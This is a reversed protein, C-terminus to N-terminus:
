CLWPFDGNKIPPLYNKLRQFTNGVHCSSTNFCSVIIAIHRTTFKAAVNGGNGAATARHHNPTEWPDWGPPTDRPLPEPSPDASNPSKKPPKMPKWPSKMHCKITSYRHSELCYFKPIWAKGVQRNQSSSMSTKLRPFFLPELEQVWCPHPFFPPYHPLVLILGWCIPLRQAFPEKLRLLHHNTTSPNKKDRSVLLKHCDKLM